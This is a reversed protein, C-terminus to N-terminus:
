NGSGMPMAYMNSIIETLIDTGFFTGFLTGMLMACLVAVSSFLLRIDSYKSKVGLCLGIPGVVSCFMIIIFIVTMM